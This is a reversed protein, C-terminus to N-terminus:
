SEVHPVAKFLEEDLGRRIVAMDVFAEANEKTKRTALTRQAGTEINVAVVDYLKATDPMADGHNPNAKIFKTV